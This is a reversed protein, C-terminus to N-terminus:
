WVDSDIWEIIPSAVTQKSIKPSESEREYKSRSISESHRIGQFSLINNKDKFASSITKQIAGTKFVTCCWRMVRSPPGVVECLEEFNKERNKATLVRVGQSEENKSFRKKYELTYPFELTTDGFVHLVKNTGLAKNVIHSTVTSDKGGSFSVMMDEVTYKNKYQQVFHVAEETIYNYRDANAQIFKEVVRDFFIYDIKEAFLDYKEKIRKIEENPLKNIKTIPLRVKKGDVIYVGSGYWISAAQYRVPDDELIISVLANEEPFVPRLDTAIYKGDNGCTPCINDFIPINCKECWYVTFSMQTVSGCNPKICKEGNMPVRCKPCIREVM